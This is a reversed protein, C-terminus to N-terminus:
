DTQKAFSVADILEFHERLRDYLLRQMVLLPDDLQQEHFFNPSRRADQRATILKGDRFWAVTRADPMRQLPLGQFLGRLELHDPLPTSRALVVLTELGAAGTLPWGHDAAEPLSLKALRSEVAARTNWQGSTWPFVPAAQGESDLWILYLYAPASLEINIRIQDGQRLPLAGEDRIGLGRRTADAPNWILVDMTGSLPVDEAVAAASQPPQQEAVLTLLEADEKGAGATPAELIPAHPEPEPQGASGRVWFVFWGALLSLVLVLSLLVARGVMWGASSAVAPPAALPLARRPPQVPRDSLLDRLALALDTASRYRDAVNKRLCQNVVDEFEGPITPNIQRLSWPERNLIEQSLKAKESSRFPHRHAAMEYLIVGLSWIDTRGDLWHSQRRIQEPSMYALTGAFEHEHAAQTQYHVALGFDAVLPQGQKDLLVNAPKLDRHVFGHQHACALAEAVAVGLRATEQWSVPGQAILKELSSGEVLRMAVYPAGNALLGCDYIPVIAPHELQALTRPEQLFSQVSEESDFQSLKAVKLAVRRGLKSQHARYVIGFTGEAIVSEIVYDGALEGPELRSEAPGVSSAAAPRAFEETSAVPQDKTSSAESARDLLPPGDSTKGPNENM